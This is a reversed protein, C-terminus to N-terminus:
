IIPFGKSICEFLVGFGSFIVIKPQMRFSLVRFIKRRRRAIGVMVVKIYLTMYQKSAVSIRGQFVREQVQSLNPVDTRSERVNQSHYVRTGVNTFVLTVVNARSCFRKTFLLRANRGEYFIVAFRLACVRHISVKAFLLRANRCEYFVVLVAGARRSSVKVFSLFAKKCEYFSM